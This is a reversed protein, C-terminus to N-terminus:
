CRVLPDLSIYNVGGRDLIAIGRAERFQDQNIRIYLVNNCNIVDVDNIYDEDFFTQTKIVTYDQALLQITGRAM